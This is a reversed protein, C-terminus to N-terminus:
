APCVSRIGAAGHHWAPVDGPPTMPMTWRRGRGPAGAPAAVQVDTEVAGRSARAEVVAAHIRQQHLVVAVDGEVGVGDLRDGDGGHGATGGHQRHPHRDGGPGTPTFTSRFSAAAASATAAAVPALKMRTLTWVPPINVSWPHISPRAAAVSRSRSRSAGWTAM